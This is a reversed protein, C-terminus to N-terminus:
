GQIGGETSFLNNVETIIFVYDPMFPSIAETYDWRGPVYWSNILILACCLLIIKDVESASALIVIYSYELMHEM